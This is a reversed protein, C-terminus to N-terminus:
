RGGRSSRRKRNRSMFSTKLHPAPIAALRDLWWERWDTAEEDVSLVCEIPYHTLLMKAMLQGLECVPLTTPLVGTLRLHTCSGGNIPSLWVKIGDNQM